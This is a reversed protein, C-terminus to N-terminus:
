TRITACNTPTTATKTVLAIQYVRQRLQEIRDHRRRRPDREDDIAKAGVGLNSSTAPGFFWRHPERPSARRTLVSTGTRREARAVWGGAHVVQALFSRPAPDRPGSCRAAEAAAIAATEHDVM